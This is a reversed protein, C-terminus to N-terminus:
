AASWRALEFPQGYKVRLVSEASLIAAGSATSKLTVLVGKVSVVLADAIGIKVLCGELIKKGLDTEWHHDVKPRKPFLAELERRTSYGNM